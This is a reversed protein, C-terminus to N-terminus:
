DHDINIDIHGQVKSYLILNGKYDLRDSLVGGLLWFCLKM